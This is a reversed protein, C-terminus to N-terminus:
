CGVGSSFFLITQFKNQIFHDPLFMQIRNESVATPALDLGIAEKVGAKVFTVLDYGRGCGPIFARKDELSGLAGSAVLAELAPSSKLADWMQGAKLGTGDPGVKWHNEWRKDYEEVDPSLEAPVSKTMSPALAKRSPHSRIQKTRQFANKIRYPLGYINPVVRQYSTYM